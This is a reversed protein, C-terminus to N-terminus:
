KTHQRTYALQNGNPLIFMLRDPEPFEFSFREYEKLFFSTDSRAHLIFPFAEKAGPLMINLQNNKIFLEFPDGQKTDSTYKGVYRNLKHLPLQVEKNLRAYAFRLAEQLVITIAAGHNMGPATFTVINVRPLQRKGWEKFREVNRVTEREYEGVGAFIKLPLQVAGGKYENATALLHTGNEAPAGILVTSFLGPEKFLVYTSFKGGLSYGYLAQDRNVRYNNQVWPQLETKIFQLFKDAANSPDLDRSRQNQRQGYGIAIIIPETVAYDQKLSGFANIAETLSWDGDTLYLVPYARGATDYGAPTLVYIRLSDHVNNSFFDIYGATPITVPKLPSKPLQTYACITCHFLSLFLFLKKM